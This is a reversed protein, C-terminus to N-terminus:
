PTAEAPASLQHIQDLVTNLREVEAQLDAIEADKPDIPLPAPPDAPVPEPNKDTSMLIDWAKQLDANAIDGYYADLISHGYFLEVFADCLVESLRNQYATGKVKEVLPLLQQRKAKTMNAAVIPHYPEHELAYAQNRPRIDSNIWLVANLTYGYAAIGGKPNLLTKKRKGETGPIVLGRALFDAATHFEIPFDKPELNGAFPNASKAYVGAAFAIQADTGTVVIRGFRQSAM